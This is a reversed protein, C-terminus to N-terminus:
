SGDVDLALTFIPQGERHAGNHVLGARSYLRQARRNDPHVTLMLERCRPRSRQVHEIVAAMALTGVGRGQHEADIAFHRIECRQGDYALATVGVVCGADDVFALPEWERDDPRVYAKALIVLAVPEYDTVFPAQEATVKVNMARTWNGADIAAIRVSTM